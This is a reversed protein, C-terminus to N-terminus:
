PACTYWLWTNGHIIACVYVSCVVGSAVVYSCGGGYLSLLLCFVGGCVVALVFHLNCVMSMHLTLVNTFAQDTFSFLVHTLTYVFVLM